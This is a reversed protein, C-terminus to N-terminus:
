ISSIVSSKSHAASINSTVLFQCKRKILRSQTLIKSINTISSIDEQITIKAKVRDQIIIINSSTIETSIQIINDVTEKTKTTIKIKSIIDVVQQLTRNTEVAIAEKIMQSIRKQNKIEKQNNIKIMDEKVMM